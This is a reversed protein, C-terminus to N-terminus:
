NNKEKEPNSENNHFPDLPKELPKHFNILRQINDNGLKKQINRSKDDDNM